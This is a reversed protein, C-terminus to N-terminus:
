GTLAIRAPAPVARLERATRSLPNKAHQAEDAVVLGWGVEALRPSDRLVVGYTVLVIEDPALDALHRGGGHYRRVPVDPSFRRVEREWTGLLSAPCVVLTPGAKVERRHLHLAIVQITKGLGMDDALCGGIGAECMGALWALGRRQYPRLTAVLGSPPEIQVPTSALNAVKAALDALPGEAIVAVTEGDIEASGALVAGLAESVRMRTRPPRRLRDLLAPDLMVWRGRLRILPRKAEALAAVEGADLLAGDLTLQWRFDLLAALGFGADTVQGPAPTPIARLKLGGDVLSSPWLVEIGAGALEEAAPGILSTVADDDLSIVSPSAQALAEALPPWIPAGRRLALLLDTEAQSGFRSLVTEPQNWLAAADVILSPDANSRLQLVLRFTPALGDAEDPIQAGYEEVAGPSYEEDDALDEEDGVVLSAPAAEIRLGLRAGAALGDTTDALWEALDGVGTPEAAAFATSGTTRAAAPSRAILDAIADWLERILAEPSRLRMPRSGPIALAHATPPFVAALERLWSLDAPDFPGARWVDAADAGVTPLLRGRAVLGVGAAAAAAWVRASRRMPRGVREGPEVTLLVPLAEALPILDASVLRKRIGYRGGPFVLELKASGSGKGWHAFVGRRPIEGPVFVLEGDLM